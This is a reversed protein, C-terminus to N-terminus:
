PSPITKYKTMITLFSLDLVNISNSYMVRTSDKNRTIIRCYQILQMGCSNSCAQRYSTFTDYAIGRPKRCEQLAENSPRLCRHAAPDTEIRTVVFRRKISSLLEQCVKVGCKRSLQQRGPGESASRAIFFRVSDHLMFRDQYRRLQKLKNKAMGESYSNQHYRVPQLTASSGSKRRGSKLHIIPMSSVHSSPHQLVSPYIFTSPRVIPSSYALVLQSASMRNRRVVLSDVVVELNQVWITVGDQWRFRCSPVPQSRNRFPLHDTRFLSFSLPAHISAM